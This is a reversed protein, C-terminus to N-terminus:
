CEVWESGNWRYMKDSRLDHYTDGIKYHNGKNGANDQKAAQTGRINGQSQLRQTDVASTRGKGIRRVVVQTAFLKKLRGFLSTDAM